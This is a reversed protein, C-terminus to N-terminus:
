VVWRAYAANNPKDADVFAFDFREGERELEALSDLAPGVRVEVRDILGARELNARAVQAHRPELELSVLRGGPPLSRALWIASYGALTGIELVSSAGSLRLLLALLKGQAPSVSIAPMGAARGAELAARLVDDEHVM